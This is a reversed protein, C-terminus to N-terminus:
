DTNRKWYFKKGHMVKVNLSEAFELKRLQIQLERADSMDKIGLKTILDRIDLPESTLNELIREGSINSRSTIEPMQLNLKPVQSPVEEKQTSSPKVRKKPTKVTSSKSPKPINKKELSVKRAIEDFNKVHNKFQDYLEEYSHRDSSTIEKQLIKEAATEVEEPSVLVMHACIDALPKIRAEILRRRKTQAMLRDKTEELNGLLTLLDKQQLLAPNIDELLNKSGTENPPSSTMSITGQGVLEQALQTNLRNVRTNGEELLLDILDVDPTLNIDEKLKQIAIFQTATLELESKEHQISSKESYPPKSSLLLQQLAQLRQQTDKTSKPVQLTRDLDNGAEKAGALQQKELKKLYIAQLKLARANFKVLRTTIVANLINTLKEQFNEGTGLIEIAQTIVPDIKFKVSFLDGSEGSGGTM